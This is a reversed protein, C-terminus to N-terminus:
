KIDLVEIVFLLPSNPPIRTNGRAGYGKSSPILFVASGGKSLVEIGEEWGEIMRKLPDTDKHTYTYSESSDFVSGDLFMGLYKVTVTNGTKVTPGTGVKTTDVIYYIDTSITDIDYEKATMAALWEKILTAEREPTYNAYPDVVDKQCSAIIGLFLILAGIKFISKM